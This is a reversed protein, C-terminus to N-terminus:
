YYDEPNIIIESESGSDESASDESSLLDHIDACITVPVANATPDYTGEDEESLDDSFHDPTVPSGILGHLSSPTRRLIKEMRSLPYSQKKPATTVPVVNATAEDEESLDDSFHDPTVPSGFSSPTHRLFKEVRSLRQKKPAPPTTTSDTNRPPTRPARKGNAEEAVEEDRKRKLVSMEAKVSNLLAETAKETISKLVEAGNGNFAMIERFIIECETQKSSM